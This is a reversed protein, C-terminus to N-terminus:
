PWRIGLQITQHAAVFVYRNLYRFGILVIQNTKPHALFLLRALHARVKTGQYSVFVFVIVGFVGIFALCMLYESRLFAKAGNRILTFIKLM